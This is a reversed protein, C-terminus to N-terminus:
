FKVVVAAESLYWTENVNTDSVGTQNVLFEKGGRSPKAAAAVGTFSVYDNLKYEAVLDLEDAAHSATVGSFQTKKDWDFRFLLATLKLDATPQISATVMNVNVNTNFILYQGAIEGLMWTGFGRSTTFFLPDFSKDTNDGPNGDGSFHAYRYSLKPTWPAESFTYGPEVYWADAQVKNNAAQNREIVYQGYFSFDEVAPVLAGGAHASFVDLGDRNASAQNTVAANNGNRFSFNGTEDGSFVKLYTLGVYLKRNDYNARGDLNDADQFYEVNAGWLSTRPQDLMYGKRQNSTNRLVFVDGRVPSTNIRAIGTSEFATRPGLWYAGRKGTDATGDGILFADAIRFSQRGGSLDLADTGLAPLLDGSRWGAYADEIAVSGPSRPTASIANADGDGRTFAAIVSTGAYLTGIAEGTYSARLEPKAFGELWQPGGTIRSGLAGADNRYTGAGFNAGPSALGGLGLTLAGDVKVGDKDLLSVEASAPASALGVGATLVATMAFGRTGTVLGAMQWWEM